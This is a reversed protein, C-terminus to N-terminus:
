WVFPLEVLGNEVDIKLAPLTKYRKYPATPINNLTYFDKQNGKNSILRLTKPSPYVKKGENELTELAELNVNEIEITLVDVQNGLNIVTDYDNLSGQFFKTAGFQCPAEASPDVVYTQIDFKRTETLMMKGLQGGGLIGLKFDSSFYNM